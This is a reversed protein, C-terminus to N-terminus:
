FSQLVPWSDQHTEALMTLFCVHVTIIALGAFPHAHLEALVLEPAPHTNM